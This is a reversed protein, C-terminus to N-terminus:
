KKNMQALTADTIDHSGYPASATDFVISFSQAKAVVAAAARAKTEDDAIDARRMQDIDVSFEQNLQGLQDKTHDIRHQYDDLLSIDDGTKTTKKSLDLYKTGSDSVDKKTKELEAKEADTPNTKLWDNKLLILQEPTIVPNQQCFVMLDHRAVGAKELDASQAKAVDCSGIVKNLDVVASTSPSGQFGSAVVIGGIAAAILWGLLELKTTKM